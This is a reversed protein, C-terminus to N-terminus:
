AKVWILVLIAAVLLWWWVPAPVSLIFHLYVHHVRPEAPPVPAPFRRPGEPEM